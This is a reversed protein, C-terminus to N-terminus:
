TLMLEFSNTRRKKMLSTGGSMVVDAPVAVGWNLLIM